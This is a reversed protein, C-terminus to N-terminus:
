QERQLIGHLISIDIPITFRDPKIIHNGSSVVNGKDDYLLYALQILRPWNYVDNAPSKWNKPLGTTETDFFLYYEKNDVLIESNSNDEIAKKDIFLDDEYEGAFKEM